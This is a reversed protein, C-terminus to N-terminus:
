VNYLSPYCMRYLSVEDDSRDRDWAPPSPPPSFGNLDDFDLQSQIERVVDEEVDELVVDDEVGHGRHRGDVGFQLGMGVGM